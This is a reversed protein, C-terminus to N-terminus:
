GSGSPGMILLSEGRRVTLDVGDVARVAAPGSGFVKTLGQAELSVDDPGPGNTHAKMTLEERRSPASCSPPTSAPSGDCPSSPLWSRWPWSPSSSALSIM